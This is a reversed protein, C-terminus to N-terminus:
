LVHLIWRDSSASDRMQNTLVEHMSIVDALGERKERHGLELKWYALSIPRARYVLIALVWQLKAPQTHQITHVHIHTHTYTHTHPPTSHPTHVTYTYKHTSASMHAQRDKRGAPQRASLPYPHARALLPFSWDNGSYLGLRWLSGHYTRPFPSM